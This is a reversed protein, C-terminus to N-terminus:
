DSIQSKQARLFSPKTYTCLSASSADLGRGDGGDGMQADQMIGADSDDYDYSYGHEVNVIPTARKTKLSKSKDAATITDSHPPSILALLYLKANYIETAVNM